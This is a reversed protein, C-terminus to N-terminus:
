SGVGQVLSNQKFTEALSPDIICRYGELRAVTAGNHDLLEIGATAEHAGAKQVRSIVRVGDKPFTRAFQRYSQVGVPLSGDGRQAFAWLIMAQFASDLALPDALWAARM